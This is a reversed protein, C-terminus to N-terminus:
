LLNVDNFVTQVSMFKWVKSSLQSRTFSVNLTYECDAHVAMWEQENRRYDHVDVEKTKNEVNGVENLWDGTLSLTLSTFPLRSLIDYM